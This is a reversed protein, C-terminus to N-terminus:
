ECRALQTAVWRFAAVAVLGRATSPASAACRSPISRTKGSLAGPDAVLPEVHDSDEIRCDQGRVNVGGYEDATGCSLGGEARIAMWGGDVYSRLGLSNVGDMREQCGKIAERVLYEGTSESTGSSVTQDHGM